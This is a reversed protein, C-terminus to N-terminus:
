VDVISDAGYCNSNLITGSLTILTSITASASAFTCNSIIGTDGHIGTCNIYMNVAGGSPQAHHFRCNDIILGRAGQIRIDQNWNAPLGAFDCDRITPYRVQAVSAAHNIGLGGEKFYCHQITVWHTTDLNITGYSSGVAKFDKFFCNSVTLGYAHATSVTAYIAGKSSTLAKVGLNEISVAPSQVTIAEDSGGADPEIMCQCSSGLGIGRGTGVIALGTKDTPIIITGTYYGHSSHTDLDIERPKLFITDHMGARTVATQILKLAKTPTKGSNTDSGGDDDVFWVNKGWWGAYHSAGIPRGMTAAGNPFNTFGM